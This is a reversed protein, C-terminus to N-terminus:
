RARDSTTENQTPTKYQEIKEFAGKILSLATDYARFRQGIIADEQNDVSPKHSEAVETFVEKLAQLLIDDALLLRLKDRKLENM